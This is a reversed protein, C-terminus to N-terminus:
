FALVCCAKTSVFFTVSVLCLVPGMRAHTRAHMRQRITVCLSQDRLLPLYQFRVRGKEVGPKAETHNPPRDYYVITDAYLVFWRNKWNKRVGGLKSLWGSKSAM